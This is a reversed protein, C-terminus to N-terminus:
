IQHDNLYKIQVDLNEPMYGPNFDPNRAIEGTERNVFGKVYQKPLEYKCDELDDEEGAEMIQSLAQQIEFKPNLKESIETYVSKAFALIVIYPGYHKRLSDWYRIYVIDNVIQDTTKQFSDRFRFGEEIIKNAIEESFTRHSFMEIRDNEPMIFESLEDTLEEIRPEKADGKNGSRKKM